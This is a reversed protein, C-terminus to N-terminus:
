VAVVNLTVVDTVVVGSLVLETVVDSSVVEAVCSVDLAPPIESKVDTVVIKIEESSILVVDDSSSDVLTVDRDVVPRDVEM